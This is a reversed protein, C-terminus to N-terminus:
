LKMLLGDFGVYIRGNRHKMKSITGDCCGNRTTDCGDTTDCCGNRITDCFGNTTDVGVCGSFCDVNRQFSYYDITHSMGILITSFPKIKQIFQSTQPWCWHSSYSGEELTCDVVLLLPEKISEFVSRVGRKVDEELCHLDSFYLLGGYMKLKDNNCHHYGISFGNSYYIDGSIMHKGHPLPIPTIPLFDLIKFEKWADFIKFRLSGVLGGGTAQEPNVLYPFTTMITNFTDKDCYVDLGNQVLPSHGTWHRLDDLGLIADAHGHTILVADLRTVGSPILIEKCSSYFHKGCDILIAHLTSDPHRYRILSSPNNRNNRNKLTTIAPPGGNIANYEATRPLLNMSDLCVKCQLGGEIDMLCSLNPVGTSNGTGMMIVQEIMSPIAVTPISTAANRTDIINEFPINEKM